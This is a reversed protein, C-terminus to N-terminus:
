KYYTHTNMLNNFQVYNLLGARDYIYRYIITVEWVKYYTHTNIFNCMVACDPGAM